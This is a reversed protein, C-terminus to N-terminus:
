NRKSKFPKDVQPAGVMEVVESSMTVELFTNKEVITIETTNFGLHTFILIDNKKLEEPFTFTGDKNAFTGIKTGKLVINAELPQGLDDIVVGKVIIGQNTSDMNTQAYIPNSVLLVIIFAGILGIAKKLNLSFRHEKLIKKTKM